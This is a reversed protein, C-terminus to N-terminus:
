RGPGPVGACPKGYMAGQDVCFFGAAGLEAPKDGVNDGIFAVIEVGPYGQVALMAPVLDFRPTKDSVGKPTAKALLVRFDRGRELGLSALNRETALQERDSRNTVFAVFGGAAGVALIFEKAGPVLTADRQQTWSFWSEPSYGEGARERGIQYGVNDLVTEDLDMVVAWTEPPRSAAVTDVYALAQAYTDQAEAAWSQPGTSHAVWETGASLPAHACAALLLAAFGAAFAPRIRTM